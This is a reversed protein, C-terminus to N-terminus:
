SKFQSACKFIQSIPFYEFMSIFSSSNLQRHLLPQCQLFITERKTKFNIYWLLQNPCNKSKLIEIFLEVLSMKQRNSDNTPPMKCFSEIPKFSVKICRASQNVYKAFFALTRLSRFYTVIARGWFCGRTLSYHQTLGYNHIHIIIWILLFIQM